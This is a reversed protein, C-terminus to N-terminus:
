QKVEERETAEQSESGGTLEIFIDELDTKKLSMEVLAKGKHAFGFFIQRSVEYIDEHDIKIHAVTYDGEEIDMDVIHDM